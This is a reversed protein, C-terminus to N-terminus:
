HRARLWCAASRIERAGRADGQSLEAVPQTLRPPGPAPRLSLERLADPHAPLRDVGDFVPYEHGRCDKGQFECRSKLRTDLSQEEQIFLSMAGGGRVSVALYGRCLASHQKPLGAEVWLPSDARSGNRVKSRNPLMVSHRELPNGTGRRERNHAQKRTEHQGIDSHDRPISLGIRM